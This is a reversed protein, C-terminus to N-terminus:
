QLGDAVGGRRHRGSPLHRGPQRGSRQQLREPPSSPLLAYRDQGGHSAPHNAFFGDGREGGEGCGRLCAVAAPHESSVVSKPVANWSTSGGDLGCDTRSPSRPQIAQKRGPWPRIPRTFRASGGVTIERPEGAKHTRPATSRRISRGASGRRGNSCTRLARFAGLRRSISRPEVENKALLRHLFVASRRSIFPTPQPLHLFQQGTGDRKLPSRGM